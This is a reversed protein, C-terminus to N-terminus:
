NRAADPAPGSGSIAADVIALMREARAPDKLSVQLALSESSSLKLAARLRKLFVSVLFVVSGPRLYLELMQALGVGFAVRAVFRWRAPARSHAILTLAVARPECSTAPLTSKGTQWSRERGLGPRPVALRLPCPHAIGDKWFVLEDAAVDYRGTRLALESLTSKGVGADALVLGLKGTARDVLAAGHLRVYGLRELQEGMLALAYLYALEYTREGARLRLRLRAGDESLLASGGDPLDVGVQGGTLFRARRGHWKWAFFSEASIPSEVDVLEITAERESTSGDEVAAFDERLLALPCTAPPLASRITLRARRWTVSFSEMITM